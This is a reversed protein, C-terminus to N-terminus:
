PVVPAAPPVALADLAALAERVQRLRGCAMEYAAAAEEADRQLGRWTALADGVRLTMQAEIPRFRRVVSALAEAPVDPLVVPDPAEAEARAKALALREGKPLTEEYTLM